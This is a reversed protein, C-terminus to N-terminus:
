SPQTGEISQGISDNTYNPNELDNGTVLSEVEKKFEFHGERM